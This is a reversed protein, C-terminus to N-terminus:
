IVEAKVTIPYIPNGGDDYDVPRSFLVKLKMKSVIFEKETKIPFLSPTVRSSAIIHSNPVSVVIKYKYNRFERPGEGESFSFVDRIDLEKKYDLLFEDIYQTRHIGRIESIGQEKLAKQTAKSFAIQEESGMIAKLKNASFDVLNTYETIARQMIKSELPNTIAVHVGGSVSGGVSGPRGSHGHHGSGPGGKTTFCLGRIM